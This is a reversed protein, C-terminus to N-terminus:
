LRLSGATPELERSRGRGLRCARRRRGPLTPRRDPTLWPPRRSISRRSRGDTRLSGSRTPAM